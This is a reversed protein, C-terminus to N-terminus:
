LCVAAAGVRGGVPGQLTPVLPVRMGHASRLVGRVIALPRGIGQCLKACKEQALNQRELNPRNWM